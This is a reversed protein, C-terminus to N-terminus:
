VKGSVSRQSYSLLITPFLPLMYVRIFHSKLSCRLMSWVLGLLSIESTFDISPRFDVLNAFLDTKLYSEYCSRDSENSFPKCQKSILLLHWWKKQSWKQNWRLWAVKERLERFSVRLYHIVITIALQVVMVRRVQDIQFKREFFKSICTPKDIREQQDEHGRVLGAYWISFHNRRECFQTNSWCSYLVATVM